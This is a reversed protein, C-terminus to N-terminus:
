IIAIDGSAGPLWPPSSGLKSINGSLKTIFVTDPLVFDLLIESLNM